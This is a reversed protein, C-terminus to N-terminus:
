RKVEKKEYDESFNVFNDECFGKIENYKKAALKKAQNLSFAGQYIEFLDGSEEVVTLHFMFPWRKKAKVNSFTTEFLKIQERM